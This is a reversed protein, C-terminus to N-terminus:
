LVLIPIDEHCQVRDAKWVTGDAAGTMTPLLAGQFRDFSLFPTSPVFRLWGPPNGLQQRSKRALFPDVWPLYLQVLM